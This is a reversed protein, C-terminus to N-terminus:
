NLRLTCNMECYARYAKNPYKITDVTRCDRYVAADRLKSGYTQNDITARIVNLSNNNCNHIASNIMRNM